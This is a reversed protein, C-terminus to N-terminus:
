DKALQPPMLRPSFPGTRAADPLHFGQQSFCHQLGSRMAPRTPQGRYKSWGPRGLLPSPSLHAKLPGPHPILSSITVTTDAGGWLGTACVVCLQATSDPIREWGCHSSSPTPSAHCSSFTLPPSLSVHLQVPHLLLCLCLLVLPLSLSPSVFLTPSLSVSLIPWSWISHWFSSSFGWSSSTWDSSFGVVGWCDSVM